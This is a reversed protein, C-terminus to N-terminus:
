VIPVAPVITPPILIAIITSTPTPTSKVEEKEKSEKEEKSEDDDDEYPEPPTILDKLEQKKEEILKKAQDIEVALKSARVKADEYKSRTHYAEDDISRAKIVLRSHQRKVEKVESEEKRFLEEIKKFEKQKEALKLASVKLQEENEQLRKALEELKASPDNCSLKKTEEEFKQELQVCRGITNTIIQELVPQKKKVEFLRKREKVEAFLKACQKEKGKPISFYTEAYTSDAEWDKDEIYCPHSPFYKTQTCGNCYGSTENCLNEDEDDEDDEAGYGYSSGFKDSSWCGRNGGGNRAVLIIESGDENFYIDRFRGTYKLELIEVLSDSNKNKGFLM